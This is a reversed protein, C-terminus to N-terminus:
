EEKLILKYQKVLNNFASDIETVNVGQHKNDICWKKLCNRYLNGGVEFNEIAVKNIAETIEDKNSQTRSPSLFILYGLGCIFFLLIIILIWVQFHYKMNKM